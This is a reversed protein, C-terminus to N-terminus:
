QDSSDRSREFERNIRVTKESRLKGSIQDWPLAVMFDVKSMRSFISSTFKRHSSAVCSKCLALERISSRCASDGPSYTMKSRRVWCITSLDLEVNRQATKWGFCQSLALEQYTPHMVPCTGPQMQPHNWKDPLPTKDPFHNPPM